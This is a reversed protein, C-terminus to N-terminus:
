GIVRVVTVGAAEAQAVMNETGDGGKFALVLDPKGRALMERNRVPGAARGYAKWNAPFVLMRVGNAGGWSDAFADAGTQCAGHILTIGDYRAQMADLCGEVLAHNTYDRGGCVLVKVPHDEM